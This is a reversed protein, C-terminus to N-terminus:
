SDTAPDISVTRMSVARRWSWMRALMTNGRRAFEGRSASFAGAAVRARSASGGRSLMPTSSATSAAKGALRLKSSSMAAAATPAAGGGPEVGEDSGFVWGPAPRAVAALPSLRVVVQVEGESPVGPAVAEVATLVEATAQELSQAHGQDTADLV